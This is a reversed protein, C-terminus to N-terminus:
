LPRFARWLNEQGLAHSLDAGERVIVTAEELGLAVGLLAARHGVVLVVGAAVGLDLDVTGAVQGVGVVLGLSQGLNASV